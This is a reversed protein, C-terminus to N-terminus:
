GRTSRRVLGAAFQHFKGPSELSWPEFGRRELPSDSVVSPNQALVPARLVSVAGAKVEVGQLYGGSSSASKRCWATAAVNYRGPPINMVVLTQLDALPIRPLSRTDAPGDITILTMWDERRFDPMRAFVVMIAGKGPELLVGATPDASRSKCSVASLLFVACVALLAAKQCPSAIPM